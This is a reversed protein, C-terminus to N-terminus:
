AVAGRAELHVGALMCRVSGGAAEITPIELPVLEAHREVVARQEPHLSDFASRSLALIRGRPTALELANGAFRSIQAATLEVIERGGAAIRSRVEARRAGDVILPLGVMAFDTAITMLVNTHYIPRGAEDTADFALPEFGFNTCFRELLIPDARRSRCVYAVRMVHDLVMAGTGELFIGDYEMGSYDVIAQVRYRRKLLEIVDARREGRRNPALMPYVAVHGGAHTSFWNNPFVSDPTQTGTDEFLHVVVGRRELEAVVATVEAHARGAVGADGPGGVRQFANDDATEPNSRFAHPRIVVVAGPSQASLM